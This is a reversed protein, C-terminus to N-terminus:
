CAARGSTTVCASRSHGVEHMVVEKILQGIFEDPLKAEAAVGALGPLDAFAVSALSLESQMGTTLQCAHQSTAALRKQLQIQLPGWDAPVVEHGPTSQSQTRNNRFQGYGMKDALIPSIIEGVALPAPELNTPGNM